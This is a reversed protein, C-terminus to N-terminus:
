KLKDYLMCRDFIALLVIQSANLNSCIVPLVAECSTIPHYSIQMAISPCILMYESNVKAGCAYGKIKQKTFTVLYMNDPQVQVGAVRQDELYTASHNTVLGNRVTLDLELIKKM